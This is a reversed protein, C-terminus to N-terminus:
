RIQHVLRIIANIDQQGTGIRCIRSSGRNGPLHHLHYPIEPWLKRAFWSKELYKVRREPTNTEYEQERKSCDPSWLFVRESDRENVITHREARPQQEDYSSCICYPVQTITHFTTRLHPLCELLDFSRWIYCNRDLHCRHNGEHTKSSGSPWIV